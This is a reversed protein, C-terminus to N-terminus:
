LTPLDTDVVREVLPLDTVGRTVGTAKAPMTAALTTTIAGLVVALTGLGTLIATMPTLKRHRELSIVMAGVLLLTAGTIAFAIM